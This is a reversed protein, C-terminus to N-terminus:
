FSQWKREKWLSMETKLSARSGPEGRRSWKQKIIFRNGEEGTILMRTFSFRIKLTEHPLSGTVCSSCCEPGIEVLETDMKFPLPYVWYPSCMCYKCTKRIHQRSQSQPLPWVDSSLQLFSERKLNQLFLSRKAHVVADMHLFTNLIIIIIVILKVWYHLFIFM